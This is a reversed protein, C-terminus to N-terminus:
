RSYIIRWFFLQATFLNLWSLNTETQQATTNTDGFYTKQAALFKSEISDEKTQSDITKVRAATVGSLPISRLVEIINPDSANILDALTVFQISQLYRSHEWILEGIRESTTTEEEEIITKDSERSAKETLMHAQTAETYKTIQSPQTEFLLTNTSMAQIQEITLLIGSETEEGPPPEEGEAREGSFFPNLAAAILEEIFKGLNATGEKLFLKGTDDMAKFALNAIATIDDNMTDEIVTIFPEGNELRKRMKEWHVTYMMREGLILGAGYWYSQLLAAGATLPTLAVNAIIGGVAGMGVIAGLAVGGVM